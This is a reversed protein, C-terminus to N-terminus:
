YLNGASLRCLMWGAVERVDHEDALTREIGEINEDMLCDRGRQISCLSGLLLLSERRVEKDSHKIYILSLLVLKQSIMQDKNEQHGAQENLLMLAEKYNQAPLDEYTLIEVLKPIARDFVAHFVETPDYRENFPKELYPHRDSLFNSVIHKKYGHNLINYTPM